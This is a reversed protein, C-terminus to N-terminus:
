GFVGAWQDLASACGASCEFCCRTRVRVHQPLAGFLGAPPLSRATSMRPAPRRRSAWTSTSDSCSRSSRSRFLPSRWSRGGRCQARATLHNIAPVGKACQMSHLHRSPASRPFPTPPACVSAHGARTACCQVSRACPWKVERGGHRRRAEGAIDAGFSEVSRMSRLLSVRTASTGAKSGM